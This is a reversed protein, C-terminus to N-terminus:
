STPFATRSLRREILSFLAHATSQASGNGDLVAFTDFGPLSRYAADLASLFELTEEDTARSAIRAHAVRPEVSLYVVLDPQPLLKLLWPILRGASLGRVKRLALQCSLHRDFVVVGRRRRARFTSRLVALVRLMTELADLVRVGLLSEATASYRSAWRNLTRRGGPNRYLETEVSQAALERMLTRAVTTKGAGDIGLLVVRLVQPNGPIGTM